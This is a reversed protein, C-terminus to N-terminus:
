NVSTNKNNFDKIFNNAAEIGAEKMSVNLLNTAEKYEFNDILEHLKPIIKEIKSKISNVIYPLIDENNVTINNNNLHAITTNVTLSLLYSTVTEIIEDIDNFKENTNV